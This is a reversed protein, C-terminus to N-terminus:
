EPYPLSIVMVMGYFHIHDTVPYDKRAEVGVIHKLYSQQLQNGEVASGRYEVENM